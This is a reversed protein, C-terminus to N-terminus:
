LAITESNGAMDALVAQGNEVYFMAAKPGSSPNGYMDRLMPAATFAKELLDATTHFVAKGSLRLWQGKDNSVSLEFKPNAVLQKHVKKGEGTFFYLRGSDLMHFGFPRVRPQDGEVTALQFVPNANLFDVVKQM